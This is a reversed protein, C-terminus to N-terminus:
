KTFKEMCRLKQLAHADAGYFGHMETDRYGHIIEIKHVSKTPGRGVVFDRSNWCGESKHSLIYKDLGDLSLFSGSSSKQLFFMAWRGKGGREMEGEAAAANPCSSAASVISPERYWRWTHMCSVLSDCRCKLLHFCAFFFLVEVSKPCVTGCSSWSETDPYTQSTLIM